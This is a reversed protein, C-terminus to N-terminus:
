RGVRFDSVRMTELPVEKLKALLSERDKGAIGKWDLVFMRVKELTKEVCQQLMAVDLAEFLYSPIIHGFAVDGEVALRTFRGNCHSGGLGIAASVTSDHKIAGIIAHATAEAAKPNTWASLASGIEVFMSPFDLSPGHHTGEYYVEFEALGMRSKQIAMERLVNRMANAPAVSVRGRVGGFGADGINGPVHVSLIPRGDRSEHRSPFIALEPKFSDAVRQEFILEGKVFVLRMEKGNVVKQYMPRGRFSESSREFAYLEVIKEAIGRSAPDDESAVCLILIWVGM